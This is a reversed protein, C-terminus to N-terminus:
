GRFRIDVARFTQSHCQPGLRRPFRDVSGDL